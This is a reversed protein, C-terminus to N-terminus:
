YTTVIITATATTAAATTTTTTTITTTTTTTTTITTTITTTTATSTIITGTKMLMKDYDRKITNVKDNCISISNNLDGKIENLYHLRIQFRKM